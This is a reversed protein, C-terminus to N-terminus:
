PQLPIYSSVIQANVHVTLILSSICHLMPVSHEMVLNLQLQKSKLDIMLNAWSKRFKIIMMMWWLMQWNFWWPIVYPLSVRSHFVLKLQTGSVGGSKFNWWFCKHSLLIGWFAEVSQIIVCTNCFFLTLGFHFCTYQFLKFTILWNLSMDKFLPFWFFRFFHREFCCLSRRQWATLKPSSIM